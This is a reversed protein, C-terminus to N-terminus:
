INFTECEQSPNTQKCLTVIGYTLRCIWHIARVTITFSLLMSSAMCTCVKLSWQDPFTMKRERIEILSFVSIDTLHKLLKDHFFWSSTAICKRVTLNEYMRAHFTTVTLSKEHNTRLSLKLSMYKRHKRVHPIIDM